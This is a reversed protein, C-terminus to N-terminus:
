GAAPPDCASFAVIAEHNLIVFPTQLQTGPMRLEQVTARSVAVFRKTAGSALLGAGGLFTGEIRTGTTTLISLQEEKSFQRPNYQLPVGRRPSDYELAYAIHEPRLHLRQSLRIVDGHEPILTANELLVTGLQQGSLLMGLRPNNFMELLRFHYSTGPTEVLPIQMEGVVTLSPTTVSALV